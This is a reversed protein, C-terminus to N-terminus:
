QQKGGDNLRKATKSMTQEAFKVTLDKNKHMSQLELLEPKRKFKEPDFNEWSDTCKTKERIPKGAEKLVFDMAKSWSLLQEQLENPELPLDTLREEYLKAYKAADLRLRKPGTEALTKYWTLDTLRELLLEEDPTNFSTFRDFIFPIQKTVDYSFWRSVIHNVATIYPKYKLGADQLDNLIYYHEAKKVLLPYVNM